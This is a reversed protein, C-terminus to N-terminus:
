RVQSRSALWLMRGRRSNRTLRSPPNRVLNGARGKAATSGFLFGTRAGWDYESISIEPYRKDVVRCAGGVNSDKKKKGAYLFFVAQKM